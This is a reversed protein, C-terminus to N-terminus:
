LISNRKIVYKSLAKKFLFLITQMCTNVCLICNGKMKSFHHNKFRVTIDEISVKKFTTAFILRKLSLGEHFDGNALLLFKLSALRQKIQQQDNFPYCKSYPGIKFNSM